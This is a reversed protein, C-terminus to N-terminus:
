AAGATPRNAHGVMSLLLGFGLAICACVVLGSFPVLYPHFLRCGRTAIVDLNDMAACIVHDLDVLISLFGSCVGVVLAQKCRDALRLNLKDAGM